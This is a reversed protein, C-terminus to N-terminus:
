LPGQLIYIHGVSPEKSGWVDRYVGPKWQKQGQSEMILTIGRAIQIRSAEALGVLSPMQLLICALVLTEVSPEYVRALGSILLWGLSEMYTYPIYKPGLSTGM